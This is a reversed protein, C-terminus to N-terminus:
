RDSPGTTFNRWPCTQYVVYRGACYCCFYKKSFRNQSESVKSRKPIARDVMWPPQVIYTDSFHSNQGNRGALVSISNSPSLLIVSHGDQSIHNFVFCGTQLQRAPSEYINRYRHILLFTAADAWFRINRLGYERGPNQSFLPMDGGTPFLLFM